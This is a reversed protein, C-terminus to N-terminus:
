GAAKIARRTLKRKASILLLLAMDHPIDTQRSTSTTTCVSLGIFIYSLGHVTNVSNTLWLEIRKLQSV